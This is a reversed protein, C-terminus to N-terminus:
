ASGLFFSSLILLFFFSSSLLFFLSPSSFPIPFLLFFFFFLLLPYSSFFFPGQGMLYPRFSGKKIFLLIAKKTQKTRSKGRRMCMFVVLINRLTHTYQAFPPSRRTWWISLRRRQSQSSNANRATTRQRRLGPPTKRSRGDPRARPREDALLPHGDGHGGRGGRVIAHPQRRRKDHDDGHDDSAVSRGRTAACASWTVRALRATCRRTPVSELWSTDTAVRRRSSM